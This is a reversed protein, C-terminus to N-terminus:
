LDVRVLIEGCKPLRILCDESSYIGDQTSILYFGNM